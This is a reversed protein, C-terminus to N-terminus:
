TGEEPRPLDDGPAPSPDNSSSIDDGRTKGRDDSASVAEGRAPNRGLLYKEARHATELTNVNTFALELAEQSGHESPPIRFTKMARLATEMSRRGTRIPEELFPLGQVEYGACLPEFGLPGHSGPVAAHFGAPWGGLIEGVLGATVLPLDCALLFVGELGEEKAWSLATQLGGLPGLGPVLDPRGPIGLADAVHGNPTIIVQKQTWPTLADLAWEAMARGHLPFLSKEGGFRRSNGGALVVGLIDRQSPATSKPPPAM